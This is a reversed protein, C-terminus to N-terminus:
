QFLLLLSLFAFLEFLWSALRTGSLRSELLSKCDLEMIPFNFRDSSTFKVDSETARIIEVFLSSFM